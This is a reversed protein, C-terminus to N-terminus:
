SDGRTDTSESESASDTPPATEAPFLWGALPTILAPLLILTAIGSVAMITALFFGVTQYPVLPAVLLPLFGVAIVIGNRAIASAPEAFMPGSAAAWSGHKKVMERARELFHISFDVSLGLTLSSLVAVPMDYDKGVLGILGYIFAITISLPIMSLAGFSPSRFLIVMMILVMVFSGALSNLMGAVMQEQWVVNIYTLGAWDRQLPVPPPNAAIYADVERTVEAMDRNDGSRLQVWLNVAEYDRTILHFLSDRKKTGELQIFVQAIGPVNHPISYNADNAVAPADEQYMIEYHAKQLADV